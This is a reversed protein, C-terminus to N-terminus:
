DAKGDPVEELADEVIKRIATPRCRASLNKWQNLLKLISGLAKRYRAIEEEYRAEMALGGDEYAAGTWGSMNKKLQNIEAKYALCKGELKMIRNRMRIIGSESDAKAGNWADEMWDIPSSRTTGIRKDDTLWDKFTRM